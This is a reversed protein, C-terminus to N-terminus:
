EEGAKSLVATILGNGEDRVDILKTYGSIVTETGMYDVSRVVATKTPDIFADFVSRMTSNEDQIYVMMLGSSIMAYSKQLVTGDNLTLEM